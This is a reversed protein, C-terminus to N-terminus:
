TGTSKISKVMQEQSMPAYQYENIALVAGICRVCKTVMQFGTMSLLQFGNM